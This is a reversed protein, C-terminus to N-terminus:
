DAGSLEKDTSWTDETYHVSYLADGDKCLAGCKFVCKHIM